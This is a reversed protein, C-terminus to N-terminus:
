RAEARTRFLPKGGTGGLPAAPGPQARPARHCRSIGSKRNVHCGLADLGGPHAGLDDAPLGCMLLAMAAALGKRLKEARSMRESSPLAQTSM